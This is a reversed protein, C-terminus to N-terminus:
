PQAEKAPAELDLVAEALNAVSHQALVDLSLAKAAALEDAEAVIPPSGALRPWAWRGAAHGIGAALLIAAAARLVPSAVRRWVPVPPLQTQRGAADLVSDALDRGATVQWQGLVQWTQRAADLRGQCEPCAALHAEAAAREEAPARGAAWEMLEIDKLHEM